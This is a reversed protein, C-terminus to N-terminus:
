LVFGFQFSWILYNNWQELENIKRPKNLYSFIIPSKNCFFCLKVSTDMSPNRVREIPRSCFKNMNNNIEHSTKAFHHDSFIIKNFFTSHFDPIGTVFRSYRNPIDIGSKALKKGLSALLLWFSFLLVWIPLKEFSEFPWTQWLFSLRTVVQNNERIKVAIM